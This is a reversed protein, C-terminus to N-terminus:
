DHEETHKKFNELIAQWGSRQLEESNQNEMDFTEVVETGNPTSIFQISVQRGDGLEYEILENAKVQTYTGGFDFSASKDKASMVSTFKGGVRLDNESSPCEWDDSAFNWQTIHAPDTWCQWVKEIPANVITKVTIKKRDM